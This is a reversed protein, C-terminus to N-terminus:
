ISKIKGDKYIYYLHTFKKIYINKHSLRKEKPQDNSFIEPTSKFFWWGNQLTKYSNFNCSKANKIKM